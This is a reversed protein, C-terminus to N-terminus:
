TEIVQDPGLLEKARRALHDAAEEGTMDGTIVRETAEAVAQVMEATGPPPTFSEARLLREEAEILFELSAYPEVDQIGKRPAAAGITALNRAMPEGQNLWKILEWAEEPHETDASAMWVWGTSGTVFTEDGGFTPFEWTDVKDFLDEIPAAGEPGWDFIWCWTGCTTAVLDGKPFAAYKTPAWPEPNLLPEVPLVGAQTMAEYYDFVQRLGPSRVIWKQEEEDYFSSDTALLLHIFGEFFTGGGWAEGAPILFAPGGIAQTAQEMRDLLEDWDRPQETAIDHQELVDARYFLQLVSAERPVTFVKGQSTVVDSRMREYFQEWDPWQELRDTLDLLFGSEAWELATPFPSSIVDAANGSNLDLTVKTQFQDDPAPGELLEVSIDKGQAKMEEEFSPLLERMLAVRPPQHDILTLRVAADDGGGGDGGGGGEQGFSGAADGGGGGGGCAAAVMCVITFVVLLARDPQRSNRRPGM